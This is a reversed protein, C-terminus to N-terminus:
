RDVQRHFLGAADAHHGEPWDRGDTYIRRSDHIHEIFMHMTDPTIVFEMPAYPTMMRPMGPSLCTYTPYNGQGGKAQDEM